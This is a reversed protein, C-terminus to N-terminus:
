FMNFFGQLTLGATESGVGSGRCLLLIEGERWSVVCHINHPSWGPRALPQALVGLGAAPSFVSALAVGSFTNSCDPSHRRAGAPPRRWSWRTHRCGRGMIEASQIECWLQTRVRGWLHIVFGSRSFANESDKTRQWILLNGSAKYTVQFVTCQWSVQVSIANSPECCRSFRLPGM